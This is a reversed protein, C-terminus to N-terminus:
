NSATKLLYVGGWHTHSGSARHSRAFNEEAERRKERRREVLMDCQQYAAKSNRRRNYVGASDDRGQYIEVNFGAPMARCAREIGRTNGM